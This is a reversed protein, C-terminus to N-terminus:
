LPKTRANVMDLDRIARHELQRNVATTHASTATMTIATTGGPTVRRESWM